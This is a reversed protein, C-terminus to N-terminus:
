SDIRYVSEEELGADGLGSDGSGAAEELGGSEGLDREEEQEEEEEKGRAEGSRGM